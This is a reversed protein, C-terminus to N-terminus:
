TAPAPRSTLRLALAYGVAGAVAGAGGGFSVAAVLDTPRPRASLKPLERRARHVAGAVTSAAILGLARRRDAPRLVVRRPRTQQGGRLTRAGAVALLGLGAASSGWQLAHTVPMGGIRRELVPLMRAGCRGSHTFSDWLVHTAAGIAASGAFRAALGLV